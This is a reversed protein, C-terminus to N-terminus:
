GLATLSINVNASDTLSDANMVVWEQNSGFLSVDISSATHVTVSTNAKAYADNSFLAVAPVYSTTNPANLVHIQVKGSPDFIAFYFANVGSSIRLIYNQASPVFVYRCYKNFPQSVGTDPLNKNNLKATNTPMDLSGLWADCQVGLGASPDLTATLSASGGQAPGSFSLLAASGANGTTEPVLVQISDQNAGVFNIPVAQTAQTSNYLFAVNIPNVISNVCQLGNGNSITLRNGGNWNQINQPATKQAKM